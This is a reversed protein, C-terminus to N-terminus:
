MPYIIQDKVQELESLALTVSFLIVKTQILYLINLPTPVNYYNWCEYGAFGREAGTWHSEKSARVLM